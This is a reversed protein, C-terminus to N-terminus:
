SHCRLRSSGRTAGTLMGDTTAGVVRTKWQLKGRYYEMLQPGLGVRVKSSTECDSIQAEGRRSIAVFQHCDAHNPDRSQQQPHKKWKLM